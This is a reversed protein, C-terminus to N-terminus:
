AINTILLVLRATGPRGPDAVDFRRAAPCTVSVARRGLDHRRRDLHDGLEADRPADNACIARRAPSDLVSSM